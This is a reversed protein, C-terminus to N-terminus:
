KIKVGTTNLVIEPSVTGSDGTYKEIQTTKKSEWISLIKFTTIDQGCFTRRVSALPNGHNLEM